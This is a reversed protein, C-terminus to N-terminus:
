KLLNIKELDFKIIELYDSSPFNNKLADLILLAQEYNDLAIFVQSKLYLLNESNCDYNNLIELATNHNGLLHYSDIYEYLILEKQHPKLESFHIGDAHIKQAVDPYDWVILKVNNKILFQTIQQSYKRVVDKSKNGYPVHATDGIYIFSEHPLLKQLSKLVTLGGLGSDFIGIPLKNKM